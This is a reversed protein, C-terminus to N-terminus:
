LTLPPMPMRALKKRPPRLWRQGFFKGFTGSFRSHSGAFNSQGVWGVTGVWYNNTFLGSKLSKIKSSPIFETKQNLLYLFINKENKAAPKQGFFLPKAWTLSQTSNCSGGAGRARVSIFPPLPFFLALVGLTQLANVGRSFSRGYHLGFLEYNWIRGELQYGRGFWYWCSRRM